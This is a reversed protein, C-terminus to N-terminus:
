FLYNLFYVLVMKKKQVTLIMLYLCYLCLKPANKLFYLEFLEVVFKLILHFFFLLDWKKFLFIKLTLDTQTTFYFM